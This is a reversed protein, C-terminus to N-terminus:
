KALMHSSHLRANSSEKANVKKPITIFVSRKWNQPWQQVKWIQQCVSQLVKVYTGKIIMPMCTGCAESYWAEFTDIWWSSMCIKFTHADLLLSEFYGINSNREGIWERNWSIYSIYAIWNLEPCYHYFIYKPMPCIYSYISLIPYDM